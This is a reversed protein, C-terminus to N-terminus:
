KQNLAEQVKTALDNGSFPKQIFFVSNDLVCHHAIVNATYGSTFLCKLHPYLSLLKQALERGNMEPMVVDTMLLHIEGAHKEALRIAEGPTGAALVRYGQKELLLTSLTLLSPEDEVVLLTEEGLILPAQPGQTRVQEENGMYRPLYIRFTTGQDLESHVNIFGNNQKVIGYVTALGLGTGKGMEKTTFFPEFLKGLTNTDMGCGDDNVVLLVYEGPVFGVHNVCYDEDLRIDETEIIVKGVGAIADRANVCLNALIQDIQSPDVKVPWLNAGPQWVLRIDEGILRQLMILIGVVTENLDLVKPAITQKRAFALLQRTLDASRKAANRIERLNIHLPHSPDVLEIAMETHGLIVGLMNNFDHAVGGALRGVTDMKQSQQLRGELKTKEEEAQKRDTIDRWTAVIFPSLEDDISTLVVEVPFPPRHPSQHIWEFRHFGQQQAMAIMEANKERSPQGNPQNEPSFDAPHRGIIEEASCRLMSLAAVNANELRHTRSDLIVIADASKEFYMRFRSESAQLKEEVAKRVAIEAALQANIVQLESTRERVQQEVGAYSEHLLESTEFLRRRARDTFLTKTATGAVIAVATLFDGLIFDVFDVKTWLAVSVAYVLLTSLGVSLSAWFRLNSFTFIGVLLIFFSGVGITSTLGYPGPGYIIFITAILCAYTMWFFASIYSIYRRAGLNRSLYWVLASVPLAGFIRVSSAKNGNISIYADQWIFGIMIAAGLLCAWRLYIATDDRYQSLFKEELSRDMM